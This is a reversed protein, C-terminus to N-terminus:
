RILRWEGEPLPPYRSELQAVLRNFDDPRSEATASWDKRSAHWAGGALNRWSELPVGLFRAYARAASMVCDYHARFVIEGEDFLCGRELDYWNYRIEAMGWPLLWSEHVCGLMDSVPRVDALLGQRGLNAAAEIEESTM